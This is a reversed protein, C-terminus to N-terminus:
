VLTHVHAVGVYLCRDCGYVLMPWVVAQTHGFSPDVYKYLPWMIDM